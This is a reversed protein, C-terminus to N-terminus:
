LRTVKIEKTVKIQGSAPLDGSREREFGNTLGGSRIEPSLNLFSGDYVPSLASRTSDSGKGRSTLEITDDNAAPQRNNGTENNGVSKSNLYGSGGKRRSVTKLTTMTRRVANKLWKPMYHSIFPKMNPLCGTIIYVSTETISWGVLDVSAFTRDELAATDFFITARIISAVIGSNIPNAPKDKVM